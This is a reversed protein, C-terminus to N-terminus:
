GLETGIRAWKKKVVRCHNPLICIPENGTWSTESHNRLSFLRLCPSLSRSLPQGLPDTAFHFVSVPKSQRRILHATNRFLYPSDTKLRSEKETKLLSDPADTRQAPATPTDALAPAPQGTLARAAARLKSPNSNNLYSNSIKICYALIVNALM